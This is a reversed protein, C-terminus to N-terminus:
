GLSAKKRAKRRELGSFILRTTDSWKEPAGWLWYFKRIQKDRKRKM